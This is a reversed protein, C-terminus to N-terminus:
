TNRACENSRQFQAAQEMQTIWATNVFSCDGVLLNGRRTMMLINKGRITYQEDNRPVVHGLQIANLDCLDPNAIQAVILRTGMVPCLSFGEADFIKKGLLGYHRVLELKHVDVMARLAPLHLYDKLEVDIGEVSLMLTLYDLWAAAMMEPTSGERLPIACKRKINKDRWARQLVDPVKYPFLRSARNKYIYDDDGPTSTLWNFKCAITPNKFIKDAPDYDCGGAHGRSLVCCYQQKKTMDEISEVIWTSMHEHAARIPPLTLSGVPKMCMLNSYHPLESVIWEAAHNVCSVVSPHALLSIKSMKVISNKGGGPYFGNQVIFIFKIGVFLDGTISKWSIM